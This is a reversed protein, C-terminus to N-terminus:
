SDGILGLGCRQCRGVVLIGRETGILKGEGHHEGAAQCVLFAALEAEQAVEGVMPIRSARFWVRPRRRELSM